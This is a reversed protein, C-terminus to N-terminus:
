YIHLKESSSLVVSMKINFTPILYIKLRVHENRLFQQHIFFAAETIFCFGPSITLCLSAM